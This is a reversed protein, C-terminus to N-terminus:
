QSEFIQKGEALEHPDTLLAIAATAGPGTPPGSSKPHAALDAEYEAVASPAGVLPQSLVHFNVLYIAAFVITVYFSYLWWRPLDNDFEHIGDVDHDLLEDRHRRM